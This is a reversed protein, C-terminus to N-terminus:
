ATFHEAIKKIVISKPKLGVLKDVAKGGRYFVITPLSMVAHGAAADPADKINAKIFRVNPHESEIQALIPEM